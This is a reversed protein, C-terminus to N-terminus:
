FIIQSRFEITFSINYLSKFCFTCEMFSVGVLINFVSKGSESPPKYLTEPVNIIVSPFICNWIAEQLIAYRYCNDKDPDEMSCKLINQILGDNHIRDM